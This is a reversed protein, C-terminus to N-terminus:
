PMGRIIKTYAKMWEEQRRRPVCHLRLRVAKAEALFIHHGASSDSSGVRMQHRQQLQSVAVSSGSSAEELMCALILQLTHRDLNGLSFECHISIWIARSFVHRELLMGSSVVLM